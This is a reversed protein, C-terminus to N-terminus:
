AAAITPVADVHTRDTARELHDAADLLRAEEGWPALLQLGAPMGGALGVPLSIGPLGALNAVIAQRLNASDAPVTGSPLEVTPNEISPAPAPVAPWALVDCQEFAAAVSRRLAARVRDARVLTPARFLMSYQLTARAVPDVGDLMATPFTALAESALRVVGAAVSHEILDLEVEVTRWGADTLAARCREATLAEVDDWLPGGVIGVTSASGDGAALPRALMAEALLRTDGADRAVAGPASLSMQRATYGDGPIAGFTFKLGTVGCYAAPLRTSGGSDSATAGAVLRAGVAATSGGSSGGGCRAVDWPNGVPGYASVRGTTGLGFLHMNAIGAIVAGADRLRRYVASEGPEMVPHEGGSRPAWWPLAFMDKVAVPVGHLPGAPAAALMEHARRDDRAVIANLETDREDIRAFTAELLAQPDLEGAAIAAAQARLGLDQPHAIM